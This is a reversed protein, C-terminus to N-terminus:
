TVELSEHNTISWLPYQDLTFRNSNVDCIFHWLCLADICSLFGIFNLFWGVIESRHPSFKSLQFDYKMSLKVKLKQVFLHVFDGVSDYVGSGMWYIMWDMTSWKLCQNLGISIGKFRGMSIVFCVFGDLCAEYHLILMM